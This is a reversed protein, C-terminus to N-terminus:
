RFINHMKYTRKVATSLEDDVTPASSASNDEAPLEQVTVHSELTAPSNAAIEPTRHSTPIDTSRTSTVHQTSGGNGAALLASSRAARNSDDLFTDNVGSNQQLFPCAPSLTRHWALLSSNRSLNSLELNCWPCKVHSVEETSPIHVFGAATAALCPVPLDEAGQQYTALRARESLNKFQQTRQLSQLQQM